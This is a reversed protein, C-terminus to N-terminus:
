RKGFKRFSRWFRSSSSSLTSMTTLCLLATGSPGLRSGHDGSCDRAHDQHDPAQPLFQVVRLAASYGRPSEGSEQQFRQHASSFTGDGNDLWLNVGGDYIDLKGDGNFDAITLPGRCGSLSQGQRFTGGGENILILLQNPETPGSISLCVALDPKGDSIAPRSM